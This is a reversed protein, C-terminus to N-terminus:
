TEIDLVFAELHESDIDVPLRRDEVQHNGIKSKPNARIQKPLVLQRDAILSPVMREM